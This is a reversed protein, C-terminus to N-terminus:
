NQHSADIFQVQKGQRQNSLINKRADDGEADDNDDGNDDDDNYYYYYYCDDDGNDDDSTMIKIVLGHIHITLWQTPKYWSVKNHATHRAIDYLYCM